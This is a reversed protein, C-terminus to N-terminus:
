QPLNSLSHYLPQACEDPSSGPGKNIYKAPKTYSLVKKFTDDCQKATFFLIPVPKNQEYGKEIARMAIAANVGNIIPMNIDLIVLNVPRGQELQEVFSTIFESGDACKTVWEAIKNEEIIQAIKNILVTSDEAVLVKEMIHLQEQQPEDTRTMGCETGRHIEDGDMYMIFPEVKTGCSPCFRKEITTMDSIIGAEGHYEFGSIFDIKYIGGVASCDLGM